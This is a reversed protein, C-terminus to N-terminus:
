AKTPPMPSARAGYRCHGKEKVMGEDAEIFELAEQAQHFM